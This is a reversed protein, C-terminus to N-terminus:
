SRRTAAGSALVVATQPTDGIPHTITFYSDQRLQSKEFEDLLNNIRVNKKEIKAM